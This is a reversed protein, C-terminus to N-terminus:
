SLKPPKRQSNQLLKPVYCPMSMDACGNHYQWDLTIGCFVKGSWDVTATHNKQLAQLLHHVDSKNFRKIEFDDVCLCFTIPKTEHKWLGLTHPITNYGYPQLNKLLKDHALIVAQKLSYMLKQNLIYM